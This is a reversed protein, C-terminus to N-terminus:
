WSVHFQFCLCPCFDNLPEKEKTLDQEHSVQAVFTNTIRLFCFALAFICGRSVWRSQPLCHKCLGGDYCGHIYRLHMSYASQPPLLLLTCVSIPPVLVNVQLSCEGRQAQFGAAPSLVHGERAEDLCSTVAGM